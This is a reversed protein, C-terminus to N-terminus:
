RVETADVIARLEREQAANGEDALYGLRFAHRGHVFTCTWRRLAHTPTQIRTVVIAANEGLCTGDTRELDELAGGVRAAIV